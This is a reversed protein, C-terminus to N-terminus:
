FENYKYDSGKDGYLTSFASFPSMCQIAVSKRWETYTAM